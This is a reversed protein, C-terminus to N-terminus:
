AHPTAEKDELGFEAALAEFQRDLHERRLTDCRPCWYPTWPTGATNECSGEHPGFGLCRRPSRPPRTTM